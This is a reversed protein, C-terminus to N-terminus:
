EEDKSDTGDVLPVTIDLWILGRAAVVAVVGVFGVPRAAVVVPAM